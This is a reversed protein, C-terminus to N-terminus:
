GQTPFFTTAFSADMTWPMSVAVSDKLLGFWHPLLEPLLPSFLFHAFLVKNLFLVFFM